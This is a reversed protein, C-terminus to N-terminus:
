RPQSKGAIVVTVGASGIEFRDVNHKLEFPSGIKAEPYFPLLFHDILFDLVAGRATIGSVTVQQLQVTASGRGSQIGATARVPKEGSLFWSVLVNPPQGKLERVKLFDILASGTATGAGLGLRPERLGQPVVKPVEERVYANLEQVSLWIRSGPKARDEEILTIKQLASQYGPEAANLVAVLFVAALARVM